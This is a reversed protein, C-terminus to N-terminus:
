GAGFAPDALVARHFPLTTQIGSVDVENLARRLRRIAAARDRGHAMIKALLPDYDPPVRDGPETATDVRIGPGAPMAWRGIRGPAPVFERAPDEASLRVEIAHGVPTAAMSAASLAEDSLPRGAALRFQEV